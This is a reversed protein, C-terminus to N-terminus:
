SEWDIAEIEGDAAVSVALIADSNDPDIMYDLVLPSSGEELPDQHWLAISHLVMAAAFAAPTDPLADGGEMEERHFTLYSDDDELYERLAVRARNDLDALNQLHEATQDLEAADLRAEAAVWLEAPVARGNLDAEGEWIVDPDDEAANSDLQGFYPHNLAPM